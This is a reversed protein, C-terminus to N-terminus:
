YLMRAPAYVNRLEPEYRRVVPNTSTSTSEYAERVAHRFGFTRYPLHPVIDKLHTVRVLPVKQAMCTALNYDGVRPAGFTYVAAITIGNNRLGM